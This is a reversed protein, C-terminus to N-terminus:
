HSQASLTTTKEATNSADLWLFFVFTNKKPLDTIKHTPPSTGPGPGQLPDPAAAVPGTLHLHPGTHGRPALVCLLLDRGVPGGVPRKTRSQRSVSSIPPAYRRPECHEARVVAVCGRIHACVSGCGRWHTCPGCRQIDTYGEVPNPPTAAPIGCAAPEVM